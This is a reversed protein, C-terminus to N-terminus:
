NNDLRKRKKFNLVDKKITDYYIEAEEDSIENPWRGTNDHFKREQEHIKEAASISGIREEWHPYTKYLKYRILVRGFDEDLEKVRKEVTRTNLGANRSIERVGASRVGALYDLIKKYSDQKM